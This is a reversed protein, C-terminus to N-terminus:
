CTATSATVTLVYAPIQTTGAIQVVAPEIADVQLAVGAHHRVKTGGLVQWCTDAHRDLETQADASQPRGCVYIDASVDFLGPDVGERARGRGVVVCPFQGVDDPVYDYVEALPGQDRLLGAAAARIAELGVFGVTTSM